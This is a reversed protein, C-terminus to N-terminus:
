QVESEIVFRSVPNKKITAITLGDRARTMAVYFLRREESEPSKEDPVVGEEARTIWVHEWELGKSSHMTTLVLAGAAPKNNDRKLFEIREAFSGNLRSIVDYTGRIARIAQDGKAHTMMLELVGELALSYFQRECLVQWEALRKMFSRYATATDEGIGLAVLDKKLRQTLEPGMDRHLAGLDSSSMGTYGLVVDLGNRKKGEVIQLLNCMLAGQARNLVSSGSARYYAVGHSRCVSEIPDLIRNTRALIACSRGAALLPQLTEVAAVADAYEDDSRRTSVSGGTGREAHLVKPIRDVNNRIVKDAASLIESRCRYNSGLVVRQADFSAAFNEMGRFGLAARFGYISQDDDGVVTVQTGAKAHLEVWRYQLPDTDQFEDVLLDTLGYPQIEGSEMGAVSLRLMDQFDIKGNRSLAEQYADYLQADATGAEVRGFNTKIREIVPVVEEPKWALGLEAIVRGLLGVRDGDSAIDRKRGGPPTLQRFALSHFTGAVLRRKADPGSLALIRDRLEVAADKSFTVAGVIASPDALLLAAKAAITKTKGAGPCAIAVCHRRLQAVERQQTNLEDLM